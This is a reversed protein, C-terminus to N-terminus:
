YWVTPSLFVRIGCQRRVKLGLCSGAASLSYFQCVLAQFSVLGGGSLLQFGATNRTKNQNLSALLPMWVSSGVPHWRMQTALTEAKKM